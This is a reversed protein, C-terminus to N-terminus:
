RTGCKEWRGSQLFNGARKACYLFGIVEVGRSVTPFFVRRYRCRKQAVCAGPRGGRGMAGRLVSAFFATFSHIKQSIRRLELAMLMRGLALKVTECIGHPPQVWWPGSRAYIVIQQDRRAGSVAGSITDVRERGGRTAPPIKSFSITPRADASQSRCGRLFISLLVTIALSQLLSCRKRRGQIDFQSFRCMRAFEDM